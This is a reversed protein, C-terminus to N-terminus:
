RIYEQAQVAIMINDHHMAEVKGEVKLIQNSMKLNSASLAGM